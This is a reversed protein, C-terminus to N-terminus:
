EEQQWNRRLSRTIYLRGWLQRTRKKAASAARMDVARKVGYCFGCPEAVFVQM